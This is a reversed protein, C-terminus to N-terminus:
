ADYLRGGELRFIRKCNTLTEPHHTVSVVTKGKALSELAMIVASGTDGDLASTAEDLLVVPAQKAIARAISIRQAQGGSVKSGREGVFTDIGDPLASIWESLQAAECATSIAEDSMFHGCTINDKISAPLLMASQMVMAINKRIKGPETEGEVEIRGTQVAYLGSILKLLTSKGGGSVGIIGISEGTQVILNIEHLVENEGYSYSLNEIRLGM